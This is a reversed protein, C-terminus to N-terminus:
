GSQCVVKIFHYVNDVGRIPTVTKVRSGDVLDGPKIDTDLPFHFITTVDTCVSSEGQNYTREDKCRRANVQISTTLPNSFSDEGTVVELTVLDPFDTFM